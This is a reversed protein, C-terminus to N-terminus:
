KTEGRGLLIREREAMFAEPSEFVDVDTEESTGVIMNFVSKPRHTGRVGDESQMWAITQVSDAILALLVESTTIERNGTMKAKTRSHVPLGSVLAALKDM